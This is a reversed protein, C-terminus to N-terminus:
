LFKFSAYRRNEGGFVGVLIFLPILMVEWFLYFGYLSTALLSGNVAWVLTFIVFYYLRLKDTVIDWTAVVVVVLLFANLMLLLGSLGDMAFTYSMNFFLPMQFKFLETLVGPNPLDIFM